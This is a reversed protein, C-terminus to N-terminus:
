DNVFYHPHVIASMIVLGGKKDKKSAKTEIHKALEDLSKIGEKKLAELVAKKSYDM